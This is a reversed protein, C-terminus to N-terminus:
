WDLGLMARGTSSYMFLVFVIIALYKTDLPFIHAYWFYTYALYYDSGLDTIAFGFTVVFHQLLQGWQSKYWKIIKQVWQPPCEMMEFIQM